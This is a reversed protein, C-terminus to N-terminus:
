ILKLIPLKDVKFVNIFIEKIFDKTLDINNGFNATVTTSGDREIYETYTKYIFSYTKMRTYEAFGLSKLLEIVETKYKANFYVTETPFVLCYSGHYYWFQIYKDPPEKDEFSIILCKKVLTLGYIILDDVTHFKRKNFNNRLEYLESLYTETSIRFKGNKLKVQISFRHTKVRNIHDHFMTTVYPISDRRDMKLLARIIRIPLLVFLFFTDEIAEIIHYVYSRFLFPFRKRLM